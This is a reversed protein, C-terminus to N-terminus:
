SRSDADLKIRTTQLTFLMLRTANQAEVLKQTKEILGDLSTYARDILALRNSLAERELSPLAYQIVQQAETVTKYLECEKRAAEMTLGSKRVNSLVPLGTEPQTMGALATPARLLDREAQAQEMVYACYAQQDKPNQALAQAPVILAAAM